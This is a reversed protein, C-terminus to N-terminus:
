RGPLSHKCSMQGPCWSRHYTFFNFNLLVEPMKLKDVHSVSKIVGTANRSPWLTGVWKNLNVWLMLIPYAEGFAMKSKNQTVDRKIIPTPYLPVSREINTFFSYSRGISVTCCRTSSPRGKYIAALVDMKLAKLSSELSDTWSIMFARDFAYGKAPTLGGQTTSEYTIIYNSNECM